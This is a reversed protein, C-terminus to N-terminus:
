RLRHLGTSDRVQISQGAPGDYFETWTFAEARGAVASDPAEFYVVYTRVADTDSEIHLWGRFGAAPFTGSATITKGGEDFACTATGIELRKFGTDKWRQFLRVWEDPWPGGADLPPMLLADGTVHDLIEQANSVVQDYDWLDFLFSMHQHDTANFLPLIHLQFVPTRM